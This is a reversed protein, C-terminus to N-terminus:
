SSVKEQDTHSFGKGPGELGWTKLKCGTAASLVGHYLHHGYGLATWLM